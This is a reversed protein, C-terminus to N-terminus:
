RVNKDLLIVNWSAPPLLAKLIHEDICANDVTGPVVNTPDDQSNTASLDDATLVIHERVAYGPFALVDGEIPLPSDVNRNVAFVALSEQDENWVAVSELYPVSEFEDDHYAPSKVRVDLAVGQGYRAAHLYPYYHTQRWAPKGASTMIPANVNVLQAQCGIKVRDAHKMLSILMTGVVLAEELTYNGEAIAPAQQWPAPKPESHRTEYWVNWEDFCLNVTKKSRKKAKVAECIGVVTEIYRDMDLSRALFNPTDRGSKTYYTHLSIYDVTEYTHELVTEEWSGFTPMSSNSSGCVVLEISPDVWRIAKGTEAALRGYEDATKHGIQWPGDMENGLCWLKIDYPDVRGNRIRLDSWYTGMPHSCYEVLSRAADLGRTGLNVAMIPETGAMECWDMFEHLGFQNTEVSAWALDLRTPRQDKLGIGDEWNYGSVFNGGPYRLVPIGLERVLALVDTRFGNEDASPDDPDYIGGYIARGMHEIFSGYLRPDIEGIALEPHVVFSARESM